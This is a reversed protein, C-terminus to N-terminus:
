TCQQLLASVVAVVFLVPHGSAAVSHIIADKSFWGSFLPFGIIAAYGCLFCDNNGGSLKQSWGNKLIKNVMWRTFSQVQVWSVDLKSILM